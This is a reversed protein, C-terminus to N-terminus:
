AVDQDLQPESEEREAVAAELVEKSVPRALRQFADRPPEGAAAVADLWRSVPESDFALGSAYIAELQQPELDILGLRAQPNGGEGVFFSRLLSEEWDRWGALDVWGFTFPAQLAVALELVESVPRRTRIAGLALRGGEGGAATTQLEARLSHRFSGRLTLKWQWAWGPTGGSVRISAVPEDYEM